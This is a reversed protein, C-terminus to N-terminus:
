DFSLETLEDYIDDITDWIETIEQEEINGFEGDLSDYLWDELGAFDIAWQIELELDALTVFGDITAEELYAMADASAMIECVAYAFEAEFPDDWNVDAAELGEEQEELTCKGDEDTDCLEMLYAALEKALEDIVIPDEEIPPLPVVNDPDQQLKIASAFGLLALTAFTKM